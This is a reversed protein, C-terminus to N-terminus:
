VVEDPASVTGRLHFLWYLGFKEELALGLPILNVIFGALGIFVGFLFQRFRGATM